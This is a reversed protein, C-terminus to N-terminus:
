EKTGDATDAERSEEEPIAPVPMVDPIILVGGGDTAEPEPKSSWRGRCRNDLYYIMARVDAPIFQEEDATEIEEYERVKRGTQEDYEVRKVKFARKM